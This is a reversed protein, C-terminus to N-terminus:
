KLGPNPSSLRSLVQMFDQVWVECCDLVQCLSPGQAKVDFHQTIAQDVSPASHMHIYARCVCVEISVILGLTHDEIHLSQLAELNAQTPTVLVM